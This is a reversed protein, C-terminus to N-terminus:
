LRAPCTKKRARVSSRIFRLTRTVKRRRWLHNWYNMHNMGSVLRVLYGYLVLYYPVTGTVLYEEEVRVLPNGM